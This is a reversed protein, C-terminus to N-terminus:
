LLWGLVGYPDMGIQQPDGASHHDGKFIGKQGESSLEALAEAGQSGLLRHNGLARLKSIGIDPRGQRLGTEARESPCRLLHGGPFARELPTQQEESQSAYTCAFYKAENEPRSGCFTHVSHVFFIGDAINM